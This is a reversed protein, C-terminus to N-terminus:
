ATFLSGAGSGADHATDHDLAPVEMRNREPCFGFFIKCLTCRASTGFAMDLVAAHVMHAAAQFYTRPARIAPYEAPAVARFEAQVLCRCIDISFVDNSQRNGQNELFRIHFPSAHRFPKNQNGEDCSNSKKEAKEEPPLLRGTLISRIDTQIAPLRITDAVLAFVRLFSVSATSTAM